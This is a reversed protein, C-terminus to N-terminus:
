QAGAAARAPMSLAWPESAVRVTNIVYAILHYWGVTIVLELLQADSFRGALERWIADSVTGTDHLEDVMQILAREQAGWVGSDADGVATARLEDQTLGVAAAFAAAHVGWEYAAGARACTRHIVIERERASLLGHGLIGAGLPRMRSALDPHRALTRFLLLPEIDGNGPPMWRRLLEAIEPEYPPSAPAIRPGM